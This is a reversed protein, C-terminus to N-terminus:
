INQNVRTLYSNKEKFILQYAVLCIVGVFSTYGLVEYLTAGGFQEIIIGGAVSGVIGSLGFFISMFLLQGTAQLERPVIKSVFQFACVYFIGFTVGHLAQLMVVHVPSEVLSVLQWRIGYITAAIILYTTENLLRIWYASLMLVIAEVIVGVFWAWGIMSESGDLQNIYIGVYTDNTRHPITIFMICILFLFFSPKTVMKVASGLSIPKSSVNADSVKRVILLTLITFVMYLYLINNVGFYSLFQGGILATVAFGISGWM